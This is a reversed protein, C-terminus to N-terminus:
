TSLYNPLYTSIYTSLYILQYTSLYIHLYTSLYIPPYTSLYIPLYTSLYIPIHISLNTSWYILYILYILYIYPNIKPNILLYVEGIQPLGRPSKRRGVHWRSGHKPGASSHRYGRRQVDGLLPWLVQLGSILDADFQWTMSNRLRLSAKYPNTQFYALGRFGMTKSIM